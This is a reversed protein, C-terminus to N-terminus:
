TYQYRLVRKIYIPENTTVKAANGYKILSSQNLWDHAVATQTYDYKIVESRIRHLLIDFL